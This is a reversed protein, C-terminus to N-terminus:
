DADPTDEAWRRRPGSYDYDELADESTADNEDDFRDMERLLAQLRLEAASNADTQGSLRKVVVSAREFDRGTRIKRAPTNGTGQGKRTM